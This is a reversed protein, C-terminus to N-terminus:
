QKLTSTKDLNSKIQKFKKSLVFVLYKTTTCGYYNSINIIINTYFYYIVEALFNTPNKFAILVFM